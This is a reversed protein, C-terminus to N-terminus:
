LTRLEHRLARIPTGTIDPEVGIALLGDDVATISSDRVPCHQSAQFIGVASNEIRTNTVTVHSNPTCTVATSARQLWAYTLNTRAGSATIIGSWTQNEPHVENSTFVVPQAATGTVVLEGYNYLSGHEHVVVTVGAAITLSAGAAIVTPGTILLPSSTATIHQRGTIQPPLYIGATYRPTHRNAEDRYDPLYLRQQWLRDAHHELLAAAPTAALALTAALTATLKISM